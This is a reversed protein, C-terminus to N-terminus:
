RNSGWATTSRAARAASSRVTVMRGAGSVIVYTVASRGALPTEIMRGEGALGVDAAVSSGPALTIASVRTSRTVPRAAAVPEPQPSHPSIEVLCQKANLGSSRDNGTVPRNGEATACFRIEAATCFESESAVNRRRYAVGAVPVSTDISERDRTNGFPSASNM